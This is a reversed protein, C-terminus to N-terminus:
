KRRHKKANFGVRVSQTLIKNKTFHKDAYKRCVGAADGWKASGHEERPRKNRRTSLYIGVGMVYAIIFVLVSKLSDGRWEIYIPNNFVATLNNIVEPLRGSLGKGGSVAPAIILGLWVVSILGLVAIFLFQKLSGRKM